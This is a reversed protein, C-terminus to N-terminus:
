GDPTVPHVGPYGAPPNPGIPPVDDGDYYGFPPHSHCRESNFPKCPNFPNTYAWPNAAPSTAWADVLWDDPRRVEFQNTLGDHDNDDAGDLVGDGDMDPDVHANYAPATDEMDLFDIGPYKSEKPEIQGDHQLPWWEETMRGRIEDWNGLGDADADREDDSLVGNDNGDLAWRDLTGAPPAAPPPQISSQLGDSYLLGSLSNAPSGRRVGDASYAAWLLYEDRLTLGDGDYDTGNPVGDTPDLPNPYPRKGPYPLPTSSPYHNLDVAAQFEYGDAVSDGDTDAICPDLGLELERSNSLLDGDHDSSDNCVVAPGGPGGSGGDGFGTVVPSLRRPTFKSFKGALVRLKLRTPRQGRAGVTLLRSVSAPVRVVLKTRSARRPKAFATRGNSAVFIVTNKRRVPKYNTGRLTLLGGVSVRMPTVRKITPVKAPEAAAAGAVPPVMLLAAAALSTFTIRRM